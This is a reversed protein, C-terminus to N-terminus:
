SCPGQIAEFENGCAICWGSDGSSQDDMLSLPDLLNITGYTNGRRDKLTATTASAAQSDQTLTYRWLDCRDGVCALAFEDSGVTVGSLVRAFGSYSTKAETTTSPDVFVHTHG